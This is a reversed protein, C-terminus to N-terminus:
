ALHSVLAVDVLTRHHRPARNGNRLQIVIRARFPDAVRVSFYSRLFLDVPLSDILPKFTQRASASDLAAQDDARASIESSMTRTPTRLSIEPMKWSVLPMPETSAARIAASSKLPPPLPM